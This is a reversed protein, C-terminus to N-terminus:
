RSGTFKENEGVFQMRAEASEAPVPVGCLGPIREM